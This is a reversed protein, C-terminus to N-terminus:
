SRIPCFLSVRAGSQVSYASEYRVIASLSAYNRRWCRWKRNWYWWPPPQSNGWLSRKRKLDVNL